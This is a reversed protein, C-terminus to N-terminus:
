NNAVVDSNFQSLLQILKETRMANLKIIAKLDILVDWLKSGLDQYEQGKRGQLREALITLERVSDKNKSDKFYDILDELQYAGFNIM